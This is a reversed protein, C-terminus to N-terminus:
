PPAVLTALPVSARDPVPDMLPVAPMETPAPAVNRWSLLTAEEAKKREAIEKQLRVNTDRLAATREQVRLELEEYAHKLQLQIRKRELAYQLSRILLHNDVRGKVLYDQAGLQVTEIALAVDNIGSLVVIPVERACEIARIFTELGDSDPLTLDLLLLETRGEKLVELGKELTGATRLKYHGDQVTLLLQSLFQVHEENDEILLVQVSESLM